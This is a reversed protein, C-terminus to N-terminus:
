LQKSAAPGARMARHTKLVVEGQRTRWLPGEESGHEFRM